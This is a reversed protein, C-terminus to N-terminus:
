NEVKIKEQLVVNEDSVQEANQKIEEEANEDETEIQLKQYLSTGTGAPILKGIIVNEKM